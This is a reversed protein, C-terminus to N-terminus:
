DYGQYENEADEPDIGFEESGGLYNKYMQNQVYMNDDEIRNVAGRVLRKCTSCLGDVQEFPRLRTDCGTVCTLYYGNSPVHVKSM